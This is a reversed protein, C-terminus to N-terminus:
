ASAAIARQEAAIRQRIQSQRRTVWVYRANDPNLKRATRLNQAACVPDDWTQADLARVVANDFDLHM